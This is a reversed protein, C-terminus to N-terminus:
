PRPSHLSLHRSPASHRWSLQTHATAGHQRPPRPQSRTTAALSTPWSMSVRFPIRHKSAGSASSAVVWSLSGPSETPTMSFARTQTAPNPTPAMPAPSDCAPRVTASPVMCSSWFGTPPISGPSFQVLVHTTGRPWPLWPAMASLPSRPPLKHSKPSPLSFRPLLSRGATLASSPSLSATKPTLPALRAFFGPSM